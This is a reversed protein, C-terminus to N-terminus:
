KSSISITVPSSYISDGGKPPVYRAIVTISERKPASEDWRLTMRYGIGLASKSVSRKLEAPTFSWVKLPKSKGAAEAASVVGDMMLVELTGSTIAVGKAKEGTSGYIRIEFGEPGPKPDLNVAAPLSFLHLEDIPGRASAADSKIPGAVWGVLLLVLIRGLLVLGGGRPKAM